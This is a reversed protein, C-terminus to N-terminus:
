RVSSWALTQRLLIATAPDPAVGLQRLASRVRRRATAIQAPNRGRLAAALTLRHGRTDFPEVALAREALAFADTAKDAVLRLEGLALLDHVYHGRVRDVEAAFDPDRLNCLDPLPEDRWLGVAETLLDAAHDNDGEAHAREARAHLNEFTWLDLSLFESAVLRITEGDTRLHYSADGGSRDPELLRRAHTLTVRMNRAAGAPDLDPWLLDIAQDRRLVPRLALVSLLQRVRARRLEPADVPDGDRTLRMAGMVGIHTRHTPPAPLLAVLQAAGAALPGRASRATVRFQRHAAPGVTDALWRGLEVGAPHRAAVLRAALEVSWPLPLWCLAHPPPLRGAATMVGARADLLARAAARAALHSPGLDVVADWHARLRDDLVYGLALFRRLHREGPRVDIPWRTLHGAYTLRAAGEDGHAVAVAARSACALVADRPNGHNAPDGCPVTPL